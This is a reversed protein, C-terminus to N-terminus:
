CLAGFFGSRPSYFPSRRFILWRNNNLKYSIFVFFEWTFFWFGTAILHLWWFFLVRLLCFNLWLKLEFAYLGDVIFEFWDNPGNIDFDCNILGDTM